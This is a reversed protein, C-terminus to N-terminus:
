PAQAGRAREQEVVADLGALRDLGRMPQRMRHNTRLRDENRHLFAWCGATYPPM